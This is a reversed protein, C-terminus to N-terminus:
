RPVQSSTAPIFLFPPDKKRPVECPIMPKKGDCFHVSHSEAASSHYHLDKPLQNQIQSELEGCSNSTTEALRGKPLGSNLGVALIELGIYRDVM